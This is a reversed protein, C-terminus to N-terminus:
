TQRLGITQVYVDFLFFFFSSKPIVEQTPLQREGQYLHCRVAGSRHLNDLREWHFLVEARFVTCHYVSRFRTGGRASGGGRRRQAPSGGKRQM